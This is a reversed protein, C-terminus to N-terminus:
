TLNLLIRDNEVRKTLKIMDFHELLAIATKRNTNLLDRYGAANIRGNKGLYDILLRKAEEYLDMTTIMENFKFLDKDSVMLSIVEEARAHNIKETLEEPRLFEFKAANLISIAREKVKTYDEDYEVKFYPLAIFEDFSKLLGRECFSQIVADFLIQKLDPLFKSKIESKKAGKAYKNDKHYAFLYKELSEELEREFSKHWVYKENKVAFLSIREEQDLLEINEKVEAETLATTKALSSVSILDKAEKIIKEIVDAGSGKEKVKLEEILDEDFRKRKKPVPEIIEGGGITELPSYFRVIFKDGRRVAIEEELRLQAYCSEGPPLEDRDLLVVRALIESTGTYFHLRSRNIVVRKSDKLLNLKVDLMKTNRMSNVPAIVCGRYIDTKKINSLNIATRQGAYAKEVDSSHVQINRIRCLKNVPYIEVEDGKNLIGSILTGTIVTGFGTMSFVRDIPLRAITNLEREKISKDAIKSIEEILKDIGYGTKSSVEVIPAGELFTSGLSETIDEKVLSIWEKEALDCKTLVVIGNEVGLLNLINLHETTQPMIGEDAAIVLLVMDMGVVGALMNKIFKEHGPVDVIGAKSGDPLDFYTFGLDITIGRRKEEEWRDTERGTLAKILTTKGHDIHGATGIIINRM